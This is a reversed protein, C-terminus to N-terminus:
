KEMRLEKTDDSIRDIRDLRIGALGAGQSLMALGLVVVLISGIQMVIRTYKKGLASVLSGLGLMLPVTGLSFMLMAIAGSIPNGSGLAIIQMSQMPGCPMLGNLLGVVFPRKETRKKQNIKIASKRTFRIQLKRLAPFIGLMNIGMVVMFLGTIIKLYTVNRDSLM